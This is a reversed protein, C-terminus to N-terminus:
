KGKIKNALKKGEEKYWADRKDVSLGSPRNKLDFYIQERRSRVSVVLEKGDSSPKMVIRDVFKNPNNKDPVNHVLSGDKSVDLDAGSVSGFYNIVFQKMTNRPQGSVKKLFYNYAKRKASPGQYTKYREPTAALRDQREKEFEAAKQKDTAAQAADKQQKDRALKARYERNAKEVEAEQDLLAQSKEPGSTIGGRYRDRLSSTFQNGSQRQRGLDTQESLVNKLEEKIL